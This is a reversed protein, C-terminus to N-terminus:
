QLHESQIPVASFCIYPTYPSYHVQQHSASQWKIAVRAFLDNLASDIARNVSVILDPPCVRSFRFVQQKAQQVLYMMYVKSHKCVHAIHM